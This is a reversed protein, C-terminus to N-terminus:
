EARNERSIGMVGSPAIRSKVQCQYPLLAAEAVRTAPQLQLLAFALLVFLLMLPIATCNYSLLAFAVLVNV